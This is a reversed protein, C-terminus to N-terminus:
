NFILLCAPLRYQENINRGPTTFRTIPQMKQGSGFGDRTYLNLFASTFLNLGYCLKNYRPLNILYIRCVNERAVSEM